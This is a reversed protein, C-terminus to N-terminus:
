RDLVSLGIWWAFLGEVSCIGLILIISLIKEICTVPLLLIWLRYGLIFPTALLIYGWIRWLNKNLKYKMNLKKM